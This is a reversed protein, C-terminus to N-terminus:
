GVGDGDRESVAKPRRHRAKKDRSQVPGKKLRTATDTALSVANGEEKIGLHKNITRIKPFLADHDKQIQEALKIKETIWAGIKGILWIAVAAVAGAIIENPDVGPIM